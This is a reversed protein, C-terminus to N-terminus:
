SYNVKFYTCLEYCPQKFAPDDQLPPPDQGFIMECSMDEFNPVMNVAIGLTNMFEQSPVKCLNTCMGACNSTELFRCKKIYVVNKETNGEFNSERVECPGLLWLFFFSTFAACSERTFKSPRLLKRIILRPIAKQLVSMMVRRQEILDFSQFVARSAIVMSEYGSEENRMGSIEQLTQSMYNIAIKDLWNDKYVTKTAITAKNCTIIAHRKTNISNSPKLLHIHPWHNKPLISKLLGFGIKLPTSTIITKM